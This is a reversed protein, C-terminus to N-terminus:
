SDSKKKEAQFAVKQGKGRDGRRLSETYFLLSVAVTKFIEIKEIWLISFCPIIEKICGPTKLIQIYLSKIIAKELLSCSSYNMRFNNTEQKMQDNQRVGASRQGPKCRTSQPPKKDQFWSSLFIFLNINSISVWGLIGTVLHKKPELIQSYLGFTYATLVNDQCSASM